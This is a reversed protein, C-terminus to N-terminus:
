QKEPFDGQKRCFFLSLRRELYGYIDGVEEIKGRGGVSVQEIVGSSAPCVRHRTGPMGLRGAIEEPTPERRIAHRLNRCTRVVKNLAEISAVSLHGEMMM